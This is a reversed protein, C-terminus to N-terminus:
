NLLGDPLIHKNSVVQSIISKRWVCAHIKLKECQRVIRQRAGIGCGLYNNLSHAGGEGLMGLVIELMGLLTSIKRLAAVWMNLTWPDAKAQAISQVTVEKNIEKELLTEAKDGVAVFLKSLIAKSLHIRPCSESINIWTKWSHSAFSGTCQLKHTKWHAHQCKMDCYFTTYCLICRGRVDQNSCSPLACSNKKSCYPSFLQLPVMREPLDLQPVLCTWKHTLWHNRQCTWSCYHEQHCHPCEGSADNCNCSGCQQGINLCSTETLTFTDVVNIDDYQATVAVRSAMPFVFHSNM